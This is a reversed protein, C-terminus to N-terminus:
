TWGTPGVPWAMQPAVPLTSEAPASPEAAEAAEATEVDPEVRDAPALDASPVHVTTTSRARLIAAVGAAAHRLEFLMLGVKAGHEAVGVLVAEDDASVLFVTGNAGEVYVQSLEGRGLGQSAREGLSLLAASMAAVQAEDMPEPLCSAMPLGDFSVVAAATLSPAQDVLDRLAFEL